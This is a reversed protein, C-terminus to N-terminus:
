NTQYCGGCSINTPRQTSGCEDSQGSDSTGGLVPNLQDAALVRITSKSLALKQNKQFRKHHM